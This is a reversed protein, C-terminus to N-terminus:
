GADTKERKMTKGLEALTLNLERGYEEESIQGPRFQRSPKGMRDAPVKEAASM